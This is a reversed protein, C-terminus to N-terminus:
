EPWTANQIVVRYGDVDEFTEGDVDWYPNFSKVEFFGAALMRACRHEWEAKNELYFVLLNDEGPASGAKHEAKSTFEIHYPGNPSGIIVGDFGNHDSFEGLVSWGLGELYMKKITALHDTPRAVRMVPSGIM